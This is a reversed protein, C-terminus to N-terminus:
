SVKLLVVQKNKIEVIVMKSYNKSIYSTVAARISKVGSEDRWNWDDLIIYGGVKVKPYYSHLDSQVYEFSHNGDIYVFDLYDNDIHSSAESSDMRFFVTETEGKPYKEIDNKVNFFLRDMDQQSKAIRGGYWRMKFEPQFKYSDILIYKQVKKQMLIMKSFDGKWVGVEAGISNNDIYNLLFYRSNTIKNIIKSLFYNIRLKIILKIIHVNM